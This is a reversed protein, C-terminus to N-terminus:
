WAVGNPADTDPMLKALKPPPPPCGKHQLGGEIHALLLARHAAVVQTNAAVAAVNTNEAFDFDLPFTSAERHDYLEVGHSATLLPECLAGNWPFWETFRWGDTRVTYGMYTINPAPVGESPLSPPLSPPLHPLSTLM